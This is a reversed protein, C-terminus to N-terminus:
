SRQRQLPGVCVCFLLISPPCSSSLGSLLTLTVVTGDLPFNPSPGVVVVYKSCLRDQVCRCPLDDWRRVSCRVIDGPTWVGKLWASCLLLFHPQDWLPQSMVMGENPQCQTSVPHLSEGKECQPCHCCDEGRGQRPLHTFNRAHLDLDM